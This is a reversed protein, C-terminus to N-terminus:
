KKWTIHGNVGHKEYISLIESFFSILEKSNRSKALDYFKIFM